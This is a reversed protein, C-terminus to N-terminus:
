FDKYMNTKEGKLVKRIDKTVEKEEATSLSICTKICELIPKITKTAKIKFKVDLSWEKPISGHEEHFVKAKRLGRGIKFFPVDYIDTMNDYWDIEEFGVEIEQILTSKRKLVDWLYEVDQKFREENIFLQSKRNNKVDCSCTVFIQEGRKVVSINNYQGFHKKM